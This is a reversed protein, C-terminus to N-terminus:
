LTLITIKKLINYVEIMNCRLRRYKLTPLKLFKLREKYKLHKWSVILKTARKQVKEIARISIKHHPSCVVGAYELHSRVMSKYLLLFTSPYMDNFNRRIIGLIKYAMNIKDYIHENFSLEKDFIVGLDKFSQVRELNNSGSSASKFHYDYLGINKNSKSVTMIKCKNTNLKMLWEHSWQLLKDCCDNLIVSDTYDTFLKICKQM